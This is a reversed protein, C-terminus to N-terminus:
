LINILYDQKLYHQAKQTILSLNIMLLVNKSKMGNIFSIIIRSKLSWNM